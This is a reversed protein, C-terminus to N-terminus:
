FVVALSYVGNTVHLDAEENDGFTRASGRSRHVAACNCHGRNRFYALVGAGSPVTALQVTPQICGFVVLANVFRGPAVFVAMQLLTSGAVFAELLYESYAGAKTLGALGGALAVAFVVLLMRVASDIRRSGWAVMM